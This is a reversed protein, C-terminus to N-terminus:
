YVSLAEQRAKVPKAMGSQKPAAELARRAEDIRGAATYYDALALSSRYRQTTRAAATVLLPEADGDRGAGIL